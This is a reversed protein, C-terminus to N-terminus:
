AAQEGDHPFNMFAHPGIYQRAMDDYARAADADSALPGAKHLQGDAVLRAFWEMRDRGLRNGYVGRYPTWHRAQMRRNMASEAATVFRLNGRRCDLKMGNIHDVIGDGATANLVYRHLAVNRPFGPVLGSAIVYGKGSMRWRYSAVREADEDSVVAVAPWNLLVIRHM